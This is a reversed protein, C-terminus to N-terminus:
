LGALGGVVKVVTSVSTLAVMVLGFVSMALSSFAAARPDTRLLMATALASSNAGLTIGRTIYDDSPVRCWDLVRGGVLVGLVGSVICLVAVVSEDGGLNRTAPSALALTLSRSAFSLARPAAIGIASCLPPYLFLSALALSLTPLLLVPVHSRLDHRHTYMPLALAVISASLIASFIQSTGTGTGPHHSSSPRSNLLLSSLTPGSQYSRLAVALSQSQSLALLYLLLITLCSSLLVPHLVRQYKPPLSQAAFFALVNLPLQAPTVYPTTYYLPLGILTFITLYTATDLHYNITAAWRQSRSLPPPDQRPQPTSTNGDHTTGNITSLDQIHLPHQLDQLTPSPPSLPTDINSVNWISSGTRSPNPTSTGSPQPTTATLPITDTQPGTEEAREVMARKPSGLLLSLGRVFFATAATVVVYGIFLVALIKGVEVAGIAPSLPLLIFSPCFFINIWRLLFGTSPEILRIFRKTRKDGLILDSLILGFFLLVMCAVSAPFPVGTLSILREVGFIAMMISFVGFPVIIWAHLMRRWSSSGVLQLAKFGDKVLGPLHGAAM